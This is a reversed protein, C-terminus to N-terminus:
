LLIFKDCVLLIHNFQSLLFLCEFDEVWNGLAVSILTKGCSRQIYPAVTNEKKPPKLSIFIKLAKSLVALIAKLKDIQEEEQLTNTVIRSGDVDSFKRMLTITEFSGMIKPQSVSFRDTFMPFPM